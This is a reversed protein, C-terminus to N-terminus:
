RVPGDPALRPPGAWSGFGPGKAGPPNGGIAPWLLSETYAAPSVTFTYNNELVGFADTWARPLEYWVGVYWLKIVSRAVPGLKEDGLVEVRLRDDDEADSGIARAGAALLEDVVGEGVVTTVADLFSQAQGTGELDYVGFGTLRSSLALFQQLRDEASM